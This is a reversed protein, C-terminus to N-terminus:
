SHTDNSPAAMSRQSVWFPWGKHPWSRGVVRTQNDTAVPECDVATTEASKINLRRIWQDGLSAAERPSYGPHRRRLKAMLSIYLNRAISLNPVLSNHQHITEIGLRMAAKPTPIRVPRGQFLIEGEDPKHVGSLIKILTSKGAGNDGLLGVVEGRKFELSVGKLAHVGSYWKHLNRVAMLSTSTNLADTATDDEHSRLGTHHAASSLTNM